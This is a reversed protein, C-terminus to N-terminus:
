GGSVPALFEVEDTAVVRHDDPVITGDVCARVRADELWPNAAPFAAVLRERVVSITCPGACPLELECGFVEALKGYFTIKM